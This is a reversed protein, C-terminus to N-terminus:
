IFLNTGARPGFQRRYCSVCYIKKEHENLNASNLLANCSALSLFKHILGVRLFFFFTVANSVFNTFNKGLVWWKKLQISLKIVFHVHHLLLPPDGNYQNIVKKLIGIKGNFVVKIWHRWRYYSLWIQESLYLSTKRILSFSM